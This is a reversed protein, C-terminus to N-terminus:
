KIFHSGDDDTFTKRDFLTLYEVGQASGWPIALLPRKIENEYVSIRIKEVTNPFSEDVFQYLSAAKLSNELPITFNNM